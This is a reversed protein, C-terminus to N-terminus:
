YGAASLLRRTARAARRALQRPELQALESSFVEVGAPARCGVEALQRLAAALPLGGDGPLRRATITETMLDAPPRAPADSLQLGFIREGPLQALGDVSGGGRFHQWSDFLLGVEPRAMQGAIAWARNATNIPTWAVPELALRLGRPVAQETVAALAEVLAADAVPREFGLSLCVGGAGLESATDLFRAVAEAAGQQFDSELAPVWNILPELWELRLGHEALLRGVAGASLGERCAHSANRAFLTIGAYGAAAAVTVRERLPLELATGACFILEAAEGSHESM